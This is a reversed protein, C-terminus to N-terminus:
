ATCLAVGHGMWDVGALMKCFFEGFEVEAGGGERALDAHGGVADRLDEVATTGDSSVGGQAEGVEETGAGLEPEVQLAEVFDAEGLLLGAFGDFGEGGELGEGAIGGFGRLGICGM